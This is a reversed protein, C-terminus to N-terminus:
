TETKPKAAAVRARRAKRITSTAVNERRRQRAAALSTEATEEPVPTDKRAQAAGRPVAVRRDASAEERGFPPTAGNQDLQSIKANRRGGRVTAESASPISDSGSSEATLSARRRRGRGPQSRVEAHGIEDGAPDAGGRHRRNQRPPADASNAAQSETARQAKRGVSKAAAARGRGRPEAESTNEPAVVRDTDRRSAKVRRAAKPASDARTRPSQDSASALAKAALNAERSKMKEALAAGAEARRAEMRQEKEQRKAEIARAKEEIAKAKAEIAAAKAAQKAELAAVKAARKEELRRATEEIALRKAEADQAKQERKAEMEALKALKAPTPGAEQKEARRKALRAKEAAVLESYEDVAEAIFAGGTNRKTAATKAALDPAPTAALGPPNNEEVADEAPVDGVPDDAVFTVAGGESIAALTDAITEVLASPIGDAPSRGPTSAAIELTPFYFVGPIRTAHEMAARLVSKGLNSAVLVHRPTATAAMPEPSVMLLVRIDPNFSRATEIAVRLDLATEEVTRTAFRHRAPDFTGAVTGPWYPFVAGDVISECVESTGLAVVLVSSRRIASRMANFHRDISVDFERGSRAAHVLGPRYPDVLREADPWRDESPSFLRACRQLTQRLGRASPVEGQGHAFAEYESNEPALPALAPHSQEGSVPKFGRLRLPETLAASLATGFYLLSDDRRLLPTTISCLAAPTMEEGTRTLIQRDPLQDMPNTM